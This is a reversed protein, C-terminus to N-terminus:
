EEGVPALLRQPRRQGPCPPPHRVDPAVLTLAPLGPELDRGGASSPGTLCVSNQALISAARPGAYARAQASCNTIPSSPSRVTTSASSAPSGGLRTQAATQRARSRDTDSRQ